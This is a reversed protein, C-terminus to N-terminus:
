IIPEEQVFPEVGQKECLSKFGIKGEKVEKFIGKLIKKKKSAAFNHYIKEEEISVLCIQIQSFGRMNMQYGKDFSLKKVAKVTDKDPTKESILIMSMYSYMHNPPPLEEGGRVLQPEVYDLLIRKMQAVDEVTVRDKPLFLIHEYSDSSWMNTNRTLVFKEVHSFFYGYAPFTIGGIVYPMYINFTGSYRALLRDLYKESMSLATTNGTIETDNKVFDM